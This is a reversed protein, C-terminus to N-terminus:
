CRLGALVGRRGATGTLTIVGRMVRVALATIVIMGLAGRLRVLGSGGSSGCGSMSRADRDPFGNYM